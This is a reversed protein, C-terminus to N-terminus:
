PVLFNMAMKVFARWLVRDQTLQIWDVDECVRGKIDTKINDEWRCRRRGVSSNRKHKGIAEM